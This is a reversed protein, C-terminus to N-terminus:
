APAQQKDRHARTRRRAGAPQIALLAALQNLEQALALFELVQRNDIGNTRRASSVTVAPSTAPLM